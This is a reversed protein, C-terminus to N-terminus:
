RQPQNVFPSKSQYDRYTANFRDIISKYPSDKNNTNFFSSTNAKPHDEFYQLMASNLEGNFKNVIIHKGTMYGIFSAPDNIQFGPKSMERADFTSIQPGYISKGAKMVDQNEESILQMINRAIAQKEPTLGARVMDSVPINVTGWPTQVGSEMLTGLQNFIGGKMMLGVVDSNEKTLRMIERARNENQTVRGYDYGAIEDHRTQWPKNRAERNIKEVDLDAKAAEEKMRLGSKLQEEQKNLESQYAAKERDLISQATKQIRDHYDKTSEEDRKPGVVSQAKAYAVRQPETLPKGSTDARPVNLVSVQGPELKNIDAPMGGQGSPTGTTPTANEQQITVAKDLTFGKPFIGKDILTPLTEPYAVVQNIADIYNKQGGQELTQGKINMDFLKSLIEAKKPDANAIAPYFNMLRSLEPQTLNGSAIKQNATSLDTGLAQAMLTNAQIENLAGLKASNLELKMKALPIDQAEQKEQYDAMAGAASGLSEGFSGTRTPALFGQAIKFWPVGGQREGLKKTLEDMLKLNEIRARDVDLNYNLSSLPASTDAGQSLPKEIELAM